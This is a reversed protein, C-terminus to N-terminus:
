QGLRLAHKTVALAFAGIDRFADFATALQLTYFFLFAYFVGPNREHWEMAQYTFATKFAPIKSLYAVAVGLAAGALIDTPYHIGIYVRPLCTVFLTYCLAFIGARRSVFYICTAVVFYLAAHDSPFSSWGLLLSSLVNYPLRFHLEPNRLPRERFPLAVALLRSIALSFLCSFMGYLLTEREERKHEGRRFWAWWILPVIGAARFLYSTSLWVATDLTWSRRAFQNFFFIIRADFCNVM